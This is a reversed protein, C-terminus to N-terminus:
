NLFDKPWLINGNPEVHGCQVDLRAMMKHRGVCYRMWPIDPAQNETLLFSFDLATRDVLLCGMCGGQVEFVVPKQKLERWSYPEGVVRMVNPVNAGHRLAYLGSVIPAPVELLKKVADPPILMDNEVIMVKDYGERLALLRMKEYNLQINYRVSSLYPNDRTFMVDTFEAQSLLGEVVESRLNPITPCFLLIRMRTSVREFPHRHFNLGGRLSPMVRM